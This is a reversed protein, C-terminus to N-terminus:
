VYNQFLCFMLNERKVDHHYAVSTVDVFCFVDSAQKSTEGDMPTAELDCSKIYM